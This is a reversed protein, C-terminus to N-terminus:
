LKSILMRAAIQWTGLDKKIHRPPENHVHMQLKNVAEPLESLMPTFRITFLPLM